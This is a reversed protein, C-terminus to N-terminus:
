KKKKSFSRFAMIGQLFTSIVPKPNEFIDDVFRNKVSDFSYYEKIDDMGYDFEQETQDLMDEMNGIERALDEDNRISGTKTEVYLESLDLQKYVSKKMPNYILSKRFIFTFLAIFLYFGSVIFAGTSAKGIYDAYWMIFSYSAFFVFFLLAFAIIAGMVFSAIGEYLKKSVQMSLLSIRINVYKKLQGPIQAIPNDERLYNTM